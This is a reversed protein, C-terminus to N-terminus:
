TPSPTNAPKQRATMYRVAMIMPVILVPYRGPGCLCLFGGSLIALGAWAWPRAAWPHALPLKETQFLPDHRLLRNAEFEYYLLGLRVLLAKYGPELGLAREGVERQVGRRLWGPWTAQRKAQQLLPM